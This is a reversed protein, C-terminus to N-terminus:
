VIGRLSKIHDEYQENLRFIISVRHEDSHNFTYHPFTTDLLYLSGDSELEIPIQKDDIVYTITSDKTYVPIWVTLEDPQDSHLGVKGGPPQISIAWRYGYPILEQIRQIIGFALATNRYDTTPLTSINWPPCPINLDVLNSQIAFGYTLLNAPDEHAADVWQKVITETQDWSWKLHPFDLEVSHYYKRLEDISVSAGLKIMLERPM